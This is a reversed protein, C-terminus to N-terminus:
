LGAVLSKGEGGCGLVCDAECCGRGSRAANRWPKSVGKKEAPSMYGEPGSLKSPKFGRFFGEHKALLHLAAHCYTPEVRRDIKGQRFTVSMVGVHGPESACVVVGQIDLMAKTRIRWIGMEKVGDACPLWFRYM